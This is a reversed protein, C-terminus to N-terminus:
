IVVRRKAITASSRCKASVSLSRMSHRLTLPMM